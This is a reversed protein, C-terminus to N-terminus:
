STGSDMRHDSGTGSHTIPISLAVSLSEVNTWWNRVSPMESSSTFKQTM